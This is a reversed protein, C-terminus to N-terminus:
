YIRTELLNGESSFVYTIGKTRYSWVETRTGAYLDYHRYFPYGETEYVRLRDGDLGQNWRAFRVMRRERSGKVHVYVGPMIEAFTNPPESDRHRINADLDALQDQPQPPPTDEAQAPPGGPTRPAGLAFGGGRKCPEHRHHACHRHVRPPTTCRSRIEPM